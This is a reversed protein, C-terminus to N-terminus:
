KSRRELAADYKIGRPWQVEIEEPMNKNLDKFMEEVDALFRPSEYEYRKIVGIVAKQLRKYYKKKDKM